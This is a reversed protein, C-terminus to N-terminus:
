CRSSESLKAYVLAFVAQKNDAIKKSDSKWDKQDSLYQSVIAKGLNGAPIEAPMEPEEEEDGFERPILIRSLYIAQLNHGCIRGNM